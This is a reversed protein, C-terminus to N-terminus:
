YYQKIYAYARDFLEQERHLQYKLLTRRLARQVEREGAITQQWGPFRVIRVIEDIDNVVREVMIPTRENRVEGFLETLAAKGKDREEEPEVEKEAHVLEKALELLQKLFEISNLLGQEHRERLDELRKGLEIFKPNGAHKRLRAIIKIEIEKTKKPDNLSVLEELVEADMVLTELDDRVAEVHINEHILAITKAGLVHWLLKGNGSIPRVSDYVQTLWKYDPAFQAPYPDPSIAEWLQSVVSYAAAFADRAANNPLRQQAAILGEYGGVSRDVGRFFDLSAQVAEPLQGKLQGINSILNQVSKEDFDLSRAVDDFIGLYDVILGHTKNPYPRNTRTIAQLLNHDKMPKDLYM